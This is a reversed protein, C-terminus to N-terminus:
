SQFIQESILFSIANSLLSTDNNCQSTHTYNKKRNVFISNPGFCQVCIKSQAKSQPLSFLIKWFLSQFLPVQNEKENFLTKQSPVKISCFKFSSKQLDPKKEQSQNLGFFKPLYFHSLNLFFFTDEHHSRLTEKLQLILERLAFALAWSITTKSKSCYLVTRKFKPCLCVILKKPPIPPCM